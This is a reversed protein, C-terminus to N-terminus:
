NAPSPFLLKGDGFGRRKLRRLRSAGENLIGSYEVLNFWVLLMSTLSNAYLKESLKQGDSTM